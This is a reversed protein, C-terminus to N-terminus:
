SEGTVGAARLAALMNKKNSGEGEALEVGKNKMLDKLKSASLTTLGDIIEDEDDEEETIVVTRTKPESFRKLIEPSMWEQFEPLITDGANIEISEQTDPNTVTINRTAVLKAAM